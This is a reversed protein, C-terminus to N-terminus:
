LLELVNNIRTILWDFRERYIVKKGYVYYHKFELGTEMAVKAENLYQESGKLKELLGSEFVGNFVRSPKHNIRCGSSRLKFVIDRGHTQAFKGTLGCLVDLDKQIEETITFGCDTCSTTIKLHHYLAELSAFNGYKIEVKCPTFNSLFQGLATKGHSCVNIHTVGDEEPRINNAKVLM